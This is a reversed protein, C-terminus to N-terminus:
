VDLVRHITAFFRGRLLQHKGQIILLEEDFTAIAASRRMALNSLVYIDKVALELM